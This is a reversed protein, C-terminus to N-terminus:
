QLKKGGGENLTVGLKTLRSKAWSSGTRQWREYLKLIDQPNTQECLMESIASLVRVFRPFNSSLSGFVENLHDSTGRPTSRALEAYASEGMGMYYDVDVVSRALSESWFGSVYLSTDGIDRLENRRQHPALDVSQLMRLALPKDAIPTCAYGALLVVLYHETMPDASIGERKLARDIHAAFFSELSDSLEM